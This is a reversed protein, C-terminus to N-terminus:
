AGPPRRGVYRARPRILRGHEREEIVHGCWGVVRGVAFTATFAERPVGLAELVIATYFEVNARLVRDPRRAALLAEAEREVVRAMEIRAKAAEDGALLAAAGELVRARPDRVRYVRHGMGMIRRGADLEAELWPRAREPAGIADLMDLVPGPAGGHLPGKLAGVAAVVASVMDSGTSTVVRAAFTSANLGHDMVTVLYRDMAAARATSPMRGDGLMRLYDASPSLAPDPLLPDLGRRRRVWAAAFVPAASTVAIAAAVSVTDPALVRALCARLADMGDPIALAPRLEDLLEAARVRAAGLEARLADLEAPSSRRAGESPAGHWLLRAVGVYDHADALDALAQGAVILEGRAGDIHSLRTQAVEVNELGPRYVRESTGSPTTPASEPRPATHSTTM